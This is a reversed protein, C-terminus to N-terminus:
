GAQSLDAAITGLKVVLPYKTQNYYEVAHNNGGTGDWNKRGCLISGDTLNLWLNETKDCFRCKWGTSGIRVGTDMQQLAEAYKSVVKKDATWAALQDRREAGQAALVRDVASRVQWVLLVVHAAALLGSESSCRLKPDADPSSDPCWRFRL